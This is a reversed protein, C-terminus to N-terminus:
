FLTGSPLATGWVINDGDAATGWVINDGNMTGSVIIVQQTAAGGRVSGTLGGDVKAAHTAQAAFAPQGAFFVALLFGVSLHKARIV